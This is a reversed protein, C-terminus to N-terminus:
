IDLGSKGVSKLKTIAEDFSKTLEEDIDVYTLLLSILEHDAILLKKNEEHEPLLNDNQLLDALTDAYKADVRIIEVLMAELGSLKNERRLENIFDDVIEQSLQSESFNYPIGFQNGNIIRGLDKDNQCRKEEYFKIARKRADQRDSEDQKAQQASILENSEAQAQATEKQLTAARELAASSRKFEVRQISLSRYFLIASCFAVVPTAIGSFFGGFDSWESPGGEPYANFQCYYAIPVGILFAGGILVCLIAWYDPKEANNKEDKEKKGKGM